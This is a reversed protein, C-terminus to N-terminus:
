HELQELLGRNKTRRRIIDSSRPPMVTGCVFGASTLVGILEGLQQYRPTAGLLFGTKLDQSTDGAISAAIGVVAGVSIAAVQGM